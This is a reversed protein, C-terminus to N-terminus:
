ARIQGLMVKFPSGGASRAFYSASVPLNSFYKLSFGPRPDQGGTAVGPQGPGEGGSAQRPRAGRPGLDCRHAARMQANECM